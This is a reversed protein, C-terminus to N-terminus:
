GESLKKKLDSKEKESLHVHTEHQHLGKLIKGLIISDSKYKRCLKINQMMRGILLSTPMTKNFLSGYAIGISVDNKNAIRCIIHNLGSASQNKYEKKYAEEFGYIMRIKKSEIFFADNVSSRAVLFNSYDLAKNMNKQNVIFGIEFEINKNDNDEVDLRKLADKGYRDFDYLFCIKKIGLKSAIQIFESENNNPIVFETSM